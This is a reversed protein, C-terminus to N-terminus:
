FMVFHNVFKMYCKGMIHFTYVLQFWEALITRFNGQTVDPIMRLIPEVLSLGDMVIYRRRENASGMGLIVGTFRLMMYSKGQLFVLMPWIYTWMREINGYDICKREMESGSPCTWSDNWIM